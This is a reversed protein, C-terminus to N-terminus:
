LQFNLLYGARYINLSREFEERAIDKNDVCLLTTHLVQIIIETLNQMLLNYM